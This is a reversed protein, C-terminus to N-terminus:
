PRTVTTDAVLGTHAMSCHPAVALADFVGPVEAPLLLVVAPRGNMEVPRAGHVTTLTPYGLGGLCSALRSPDRLPGLDPPQQLLAALEDASLPIIARPITVTLSRATTISSAAPAPDSGLSPVSLGVAAWGCAVRPRAPLM